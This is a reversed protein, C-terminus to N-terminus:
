GEPAQGVDQRFLVALMTALLLRLEGRLTWNTFLAVDRSQAEEMSLRRDWEALTTWSTMGPKLKGTFQVLHDPMPSGPPLPRPGVLGMDGRLINFIQPLEDFSLRRLSGGLRTVCPERGAHDVFFTRFKLLKFRRGNRGVREARFLPPGASEIRLALTAAGLLPACVLMTSSSFAIEIARKLAASDYTPEIARKTSRARALIRIAFLISTVGRAPLHDLEALWEEEYRDRYRPSLARTARQILRRAMWPLWGHLENIVLGLVATGVAVLLATM